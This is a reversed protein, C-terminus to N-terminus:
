LSDTRQPRTELDGQPTEFGAPRVSTEYSGAVAFSPADPGTLVRAPRVAPAKPEGEPLSRVLVAVLLCAAAAAYVPVPRRALSLRRRPPAPLAARIRERLAPTVITGAEPEERVADRLSLLEEEEERCSPCAALHDHLRAEREDDPDGFVLEFLVERAEDCRM